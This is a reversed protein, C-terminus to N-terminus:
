ALQGARRPGVCREPVRAVVAFLCHLDGLNTEKVVGDQNLSLLCRGGSAIHSLPYLVEGRNNRPGQWYYPRYIVEARQLHGPLLLEGIKSRDEGGQFVDAGIHACTRPDIHQEIQM